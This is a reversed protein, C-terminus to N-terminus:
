LRTADDIGHGALFKRMPSSNENWVFFSIHKAMTHGKGKRAM